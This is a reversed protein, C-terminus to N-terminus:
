TGTGQWHLHLHARGADGTPCTASRAEAQVKARRTATVGSSAYREADVRRHVVMCRRGPFTEVCALTQPHDPGLVREADTRAWEYLPIAGDLRGASQYAGALNNRTTRYRPPGPGLVREADTRTQEYLPIAEDWSGVTLGPSRRVM